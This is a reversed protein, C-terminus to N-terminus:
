VLRLSSGRLLELSCLRCEQITAGVGRMVARTGAWFRRVLFWPTVRWTSAKALLMLSPGLSEIMAVTKLPSTGHAM